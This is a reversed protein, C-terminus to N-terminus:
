RIYSAYSLTHRAWYPICPIAYVICIIDFPVGFICKEFAQAHRGGRRLIGISNQFSMHFMKSRITTVREM